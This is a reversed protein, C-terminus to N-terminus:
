QAMVLTIPCEKLLARTVGGFLFEGARSHSYGGMVIYEAAFVRAYEVLDDGFAKRATRTDLVAPVGHRSLYEVVRADPFSAEKDEAYRVIGVNSAM